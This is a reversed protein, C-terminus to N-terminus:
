RLITQYRETRDTPADALISTVGGRESKPKQRFVAVAVGGAVAGGSLLGALYSRTSRSFAMFGSHTLECVCTEGLLPQGLTTHASFVETNSQNPPNEEVPTWPAPFSCIEVIVIRLPCIVFCFFLECLLPFRCGCPRCARSWIQRSCWRRSRSWPSVKVRVLKGHLFWGSEDRSMGVDAKKCSVSVCHQDQEIAMKRAM